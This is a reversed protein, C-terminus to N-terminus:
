SPLHHGSSSFPRLPSPFFPFLDPSLSFPAQPSRKANQKKNKKIKKKQFRSKSPAITSHHVLSTGGTKTARLHDSPTASPLLTAAWLGHLKWSLLLPSPFLVPFCLFCLFDYDAWYYHVLNWAQGRHSCNKPKNAYQSAVKIALTQRCPHCSTNSCRWSPSLAIPSVEPTTHPQSPLTSPHRSAGRANGASRLHISSTSAAQVSKMGSM